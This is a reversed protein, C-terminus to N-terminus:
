PATAKQLRKTLSYWPSSRCKGAVPWRRGSSRPVTTTNSVPWGCATTSRWWAPKLSASKACPRSRVSTNRVQSSGISCVATACARSMWKSTSAAVARRRCSSCTHCWPAGAWNHGNVPRQRQATLRGCGAAGPPLQGGDPRGGRARRSLAPVGAPPLFLIRDIDCVDDILSPPLKWSQLLLGGMETACLGLLDQEARAREIADLRSLRLVTDPDLLAYSALPGLTSLVIQTVLGGPDPLKLLQALKFCLAGSLASANWIQEYCAKVQPSTTKFSADLMYQMCIQRVSNMGLYTAAQGISGLPKQLGYLPSNVAALVKAAIQPEGVMLDSLEASSARALFQASVLQDLAHPPRPITQLRAALADGQGPPLDTFRALHLAQLAPPLVRAPARVDARALLAAAAELKATARPLGPMPAPAPVAPPTRRAGAKCAWVVALLALLCGVGISLYFM